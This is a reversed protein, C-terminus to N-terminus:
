KVFDITYSICLSIMDLVIKILIEYYYEMINLILNACEKDMYIINCLVSLMSILTFTLGPFTALERDARAM